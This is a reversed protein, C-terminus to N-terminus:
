YVAHEFFAENREWAKKNGTSARSSVKNRDLWAFYIYYVTGM